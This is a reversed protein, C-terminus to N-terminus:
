RPASKSVESAIKQCGEAFERYSEDRKLKLEKGDTRIVWINKTTYRLSVSQKRLRSMETPDYEWRWAITQGVLVKEGAAFCFWFHSPLPCNYHCPNTVTDNLYIGQQFSSDASVASGFVFLLMLKRM